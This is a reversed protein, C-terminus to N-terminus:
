LTGKRFWKDLKRNVWQVFTEGLLLNAFPYPKADIEEQCRSCYRTGAVMNRCGDVACKTLM